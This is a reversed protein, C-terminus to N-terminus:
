YDFVTFFFFFLKGGPAQCELGAMLAVLGATLVSLVGHYFTTHACTHARVELWREKKKKKWLENIIFLNRPLYRKEGELQGRKQCLALNM